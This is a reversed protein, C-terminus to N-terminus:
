LSDENPVEEGSAECLLESRLVGPRVVTVFGLTKDRVKELMARVLTTGQGLRRYQGNIGLSEISFIDGENLETNWIGSGKKVPHVKFEPKLRGYRDFLDFALASTEETPQEM